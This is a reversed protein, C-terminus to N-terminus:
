TKFGPNTAHERATPWRRALRGSWAARCGHRSAPRAPELLVPAGRRDGHGPPRPPSCARVALVFKAQAPVSCWSGPARDAGGGHPRTPRAVHESLIISCAIRETWSSTSSSCAGRWSTSPGAAPSPVPAKRRCSSRCSRRSSRAAPRVTQDFQSRAYRPTLGGITAARGQPGIGNEDDSMTRIM